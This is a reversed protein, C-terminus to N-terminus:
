VEVRVSSRVAVGTDVIEPDFVDVIVNPLAVTSTLKSAVKDCLTPEPVRVFYERVGVGGDM